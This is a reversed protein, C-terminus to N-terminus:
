FLSIQSQEKKIRKNLINYYEEDIESGIFNRKEQLCAIATTGSGMYGDFVLDNEKSSLLIFEKVLNLPKQTPHLKETQSYKKVKNYFKSIDLSNLGTGYDYIRVIYEVNQSYRNKNIISLPKEWILISFNFKNNEAWMCYYPVLTDNCFIYVNMLKMKPLLTDLFLNVDDEKFDSMEKMMFGDARFLKSNSFSSNTKYQINKTNTAPSKKHWYPPDTVVLDISKDNIRSITKICSENYVKNLEM